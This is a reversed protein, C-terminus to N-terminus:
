YLLPDGLFPPFTVEQSNFQFLVFGIPFTFNQMGLQSKRAAVVELPM